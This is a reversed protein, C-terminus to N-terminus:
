YLDATHNVPQHIVYNIFIGLLLFFTIDNTPARGWNILSAANAGTM